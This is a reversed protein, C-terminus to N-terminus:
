IWTFAFYHVGALAWVTCIDSAKSFGISRNKGFARV